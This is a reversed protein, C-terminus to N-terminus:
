LQKQVRIVIRRNKAQNVLIPVGDAGRNPALPQIDALGLPRLNTRPLGNAELLRVVTSARSSSLEWNSAFLKTNIPSDDTHGEVMIRASGAKTKLVKAVQNMLDEAQIRLVASGSDFFLTGESTIVLGDLNETVRVQQDLNMQKLMQKLEGSIDDFTNKYEGKLSKSAEKRFVEFKEADPKSFSLLVVFLGFLLTMMDAYSMLWQGEGDDVVTERTRVVERIKKKPESSKTPFKPDM